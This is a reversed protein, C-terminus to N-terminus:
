AGLRIRLEHAASVADPATVDAGMRAALGPDALFPRGGVALLPTGDGLADRLARITAGLRPLNPAISASLAVAHPKRRRVMEVLDELPVTAGLFVTDWGEEELLDCLMRLGVEHRETDVCAAVLRLEGPRAATFLADYLRAMAGQTIATALHEDAVGIANREWLRGVERLAPQFVDMYLARIGMGGAVADDVVAVARRRDGALIAALYDDRVTASTVGDGAGGARGPHM